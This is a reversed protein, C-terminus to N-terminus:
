RSHGLDFQGVCQHPVKEGEKKKRENIEGDEEKGRERIERRDGEMLGCIYTILRGENGVIARGQYSLRTFLLSVYWNEPITLTSDGM